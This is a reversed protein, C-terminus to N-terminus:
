SSFGVLTLAVFSFTAELAAVESEETKGCLDALGHVRQFAVGATVGFFGLGSLMVGRSVHVAAHSAITKSQSSAAARCVGRGSAPRERKIKLLEQATQSKRPLLHKM